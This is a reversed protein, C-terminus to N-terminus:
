RKFLEKAQFFIDRTVTNRNSSYDLLLGSFKILRRLRIGHRIRLMPLIYALSAIRWLRWYFGSYHGKLDIFRNLYYIFVGSLTNNKFVLAKGRSVKHYIRAAPVVAMAVGERVMRLSFEYDEEGLFFQESLLGYKRFIDARAMLACGTIFSIERHGVPCQDAKQDRHYYNRSGWWTLKGGCNWVIDPDDYYCIMPTVVEYNRNEDMFSLLQELSDPEVTTDNNLLLIRKYGIWLAFRIGVNNGGAFGLNEGNKLIIFKPLKSFSKEKISSSGVPIQERDFETLLSSIDEEGGSNLTEIWARIKELSDDNSGNDVVVATFKNITSRRLSELCEVTDRWGNWNLIIVATKGIDQTTALVTESM